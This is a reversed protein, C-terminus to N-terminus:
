LSINGAWPHSMALSIMPSPRASLARTSFPVTCTPQVAFGLRNGAGRKTRILALDEASLVFHRTMEAADVPISFLRARPESSAAGRSAGSPSTWATNIAVLLLGSVAMALAARGLGLADVPLRTAANRVRMITQRSTALQKALASVNCGAALGSLVAERQGDDLTTPLGCAGASPYWAISGKRPWRRHHPSTEASLDGLPSLATENLPCRFV